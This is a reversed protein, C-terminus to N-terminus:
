RGYIRQPPCPDIAIWGARALESSARHFPKWRQDRQVPTEGAPEPKILGRRLSEMRWADMTTRDPGHSSRNVAALLASYFVARSPPVVGFPQRRDTGTILESTWTDEHLRILHPAFDSWNDPTRRRAKGPHDFTLTFVTEGPEPQQDDKVPLALAVGDFRWAKTATGYQHDTSHGTHDLWLQGVRHRTLWNVLPHVPGWFEEDKATGVLLAQVNDLILADPQTVAVLRRIFEQGADTNLPEMPGLMPWQAAVHEADEWSFLLLNERLLDERGTRRAADRSRQILLELPM